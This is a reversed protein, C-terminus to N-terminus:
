TVELPRPGTTAPQYKVQVRPVATAGVEVTGTSVAVRVAAGAAEPEPLEVREPELAEVEVVELLPAAEDKATVGKAIKPLMAAARKPM